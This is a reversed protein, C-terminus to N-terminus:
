CCWITNNSSKKGYTWSRSDWTSLDRWQIDCTFTKSISWSVNPEWPPYYATSWSRSYPWTPQRLEVTMLITSKTAAQLLDQENKKKKIQSKIAVSATLHWMKWEIPQFKTKTSSNSRTPERWVDINSNKPSGNLNTQQRSTGPKQTIQTGSFNDTTGTCIPNRTM